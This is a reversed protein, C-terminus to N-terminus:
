QEYETALQALEHINTILGTDVAKLFASMKGPAALKKYISTAHKNVTSKSIFLKQAADDRTKCIVLWLFVEMERPTLNEEM